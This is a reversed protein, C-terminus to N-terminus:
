WEKKNLKDDEWGERCYQNFHENCIKHYATLKGNIWVHPCRKNTCGRVLCIKNWWKRLSFRTRDFLVSAM